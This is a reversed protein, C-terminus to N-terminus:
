VNYVQVAMEAICDEIFDARDAQAQVQAELLKSKRESAALQTTLADYVRKVNDPADRTLAATYGGTVADYEVRELVYGAFLEVLDGEDTEVRLTDTQMATIEDLSSAALALTLREGEAKYDTATIGNIKM